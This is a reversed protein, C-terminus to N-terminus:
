FAALQWGNEGQQLIVPMQGQGYRLWLGGDHNLTIQRSRVKEVPINHRIAWTRIAEDSNGGVLYIDVPRDDALVAALRADCRSCNEKVFLALRGQTDHAIGAANSGMNVALTEPYLRLWAANIERQFALEKESRQYEHRVWLEALRRREASNDTEVGLATLPDLGPSMIGRDGEMLTQYRSWDSDSLGWQQAQQQASLVGTSSEQSTSISSQASSTRVTAASTMLPVLFLSAMLTKKM